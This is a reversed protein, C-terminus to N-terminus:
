VEEYVYRGNVISRRTYATPALRICKDLPVITIETHFNNDCSSSETYRFIQAFRRLDETNTPAATPVPNEAAANSLGFFSNLIIVVILTYNMRLLCSKQYFLPGDLLTSNSLPLPLGLYTKNNYLRLILVDIIFPLRM